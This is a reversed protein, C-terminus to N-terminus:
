HGLLQPTSAHQSWGGSLSRRYDSPCFGTKEKFFRSFQSQAPFGLDYAIDGLSQESGALMGIAADFRLGDIFLQPSIGLSVRFRDYFRTRSLGVERCVAGIDLCPGAERRMMEVARRIRGDVSPLAVPFAADMGHVAAVTAFADDLAVEVDDGPAPDPTTLIHALREAAARVEPTMAASPHAFLSRTGHRGHPPGPTGAEFFLSLVTARGTQAPRRNAHATWPNLLILRDRTLPCPGVGDVLYSESAGSINIM